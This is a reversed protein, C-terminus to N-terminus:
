KEFEIDSYKDALHSALNLVTYSHIKCVLAQHTAHHVLWEVMM